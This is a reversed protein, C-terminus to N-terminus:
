LQRQSMLGEITVVWQLAGIMSQYKIDDMCTSLRRVRTIEKELPSRVNQKPKAGLCVSM